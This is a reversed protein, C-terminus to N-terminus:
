DIMPSTIRSLYFRVSHVARHLTTAADNLETYPTIPQLVSDIKVKLLNSARVENFLQGYQLVFFHDSDESLLSCHNWVGCESFGFNEMLRYMAACEKRTQWEQLSINENRAADLFAGFEMLLRKNQETETSAAPALRGVVHGNLSGVLQDPNSFASGCLLSHALSYSDGWGRCHDAVDRLIQKHCHLPLGMATLAETVLRDMYETLLRNDRLETFTVDNLASLLDAGVATLWGVTEKQINVTKYKDGSKPQGDTVMLWHETELVRGWALAQRVTPIESDPVEPVPVGRPVMTGLVSVM